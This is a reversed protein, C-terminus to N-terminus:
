NLFKKSSLNGNMFSCDSLLNIRTQNVIFQLGFTKFWLKQSQVWKLGSNWTNMVDYIFFFLAHFAFIHLEDIPNLLLIM